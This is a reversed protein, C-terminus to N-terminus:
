PIKGRKGCVGLLFILYNSVIQTATRTTIGDTHYLPFLAFLPDSTYSKSVRVVYTLRTTREKGQQSSVSGSVRMELALRNKVTQLEKQLKLVYTVVDARPATRLWNESGIETTPTSSPTKTTNSSLSSGARPGPVSLTNSSNM